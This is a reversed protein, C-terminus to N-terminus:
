DELISKLKSSSIGKTKIIYIVKCFEKLRDFKGQWDDGIVFIDIDNDKIDIIKQGWSDEPIM